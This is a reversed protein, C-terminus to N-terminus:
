TVWCCYPSLDSNISQRYLLLYRRMQNLCKNTNVALANKSNILNIIDQKMNEIQKNKDNIQTQINDITNKLHNVYGKQLQNDQYYQQKNHKQAFIKKMVNKSIKAVDEKDFILGLDNQIATFQSKRRHHEHMANQVIVEVTEQTTTQNTDDNKNEGLYTPVKHKSM